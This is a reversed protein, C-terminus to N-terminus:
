RCDPCVGAFQIADLELAYDGAAARLRRVAAAPLEAALDSVGGCVKCVVHHHPNASVDYRAVNGVFDRGIERREVLADLARYVTALSLNPETLRVRAFVDAATPHADGLARVADLVARRQVTNRTRKMAETQTPRTATEATM